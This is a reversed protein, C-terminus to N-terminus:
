KAGIRGFDDEIRVIDDEGLYDGHQVEIMVLPEAGPNELRHAAGVPIDFTDRPRLEVREDDRTALGTGAVIVWHEERRAHRQLSLRKGPHVTIRKVKFGPGEDLVQYNGWPREDYEM